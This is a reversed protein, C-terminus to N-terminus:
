ALILVYSIHMQNLGTPVSCLYLIDNFLVNIFMPCLITFNVNPPCKNAYVTTDDLYMSFSRCNLINNLIM